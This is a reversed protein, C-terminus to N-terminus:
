QFDENNSIKEVILKGYELNTVTKSFEPWSSSSSSLTINHTQTEWYYGEPASVETLVYNGQELDSWTVEGNSTQKQSILTGGDTELKFTASATITSGNVDTKRVTLSCHTAKNEITKSVDWQGSPPAPQEYVETSVRNGGSGIVITWSTQVAEYGSPASTETLTYTGAPLSSWTATGGSTTASQSYGNPGTLLFSAGDLKKSHDDKDVKTITLSGLREFEPKLSIETFLPFFSEVSMSRSAPASSGQGTPIDITMTASTTNGHNTWGVFSCGSACNATVTMFTVKPDYKFIEVAGPGSLQRTDGNYTVSISGSGTGLMSDYKVTLHAISAIAFHAKMIYNDNMTFTWTNGNISSTPPAGTTAWFDFITGSVGNATVTVSANKPVLLTDFGTTITKGSYTVTYNAVSLGNVLTLYYGDEKVNAHATKKGNMTFTASSGSTSDANTASNWGDFAYAEKVVATVTVSSDAPLRVSQASSVISEGGGDISYKYYDLGVPFVFAM